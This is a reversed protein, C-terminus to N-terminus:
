ITRGKCACEERRHRDVSANTVAYGESRLARAITSNSLRGPTGPPTDLVTLLYIKDENSLSEATKVLTCSIKSKKQAVQLMRESLSM